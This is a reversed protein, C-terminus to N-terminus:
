CRRRAGAAQLGAHVCSMFAENQTVSAWKCPCPDASRVLSRLRRAPVLRSRRVSRMILCCITLLVTHLAACAAAKCAAFHSSHSKKM